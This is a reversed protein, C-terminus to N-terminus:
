IYYNKDREMGWGHKESFPSKKFSDMVPLEIKLALCRDIVRLLPELSYPSYNDTGAYLNGAGIEIVDSIMNVVDPSLDLYLLYLPDTPKNEDLKSVPTVKNILQDWEGLDNSSTFQWIQSLVDELLDDQIGLHILANELCSAGYALRGRISIGKLSNIIESDLM